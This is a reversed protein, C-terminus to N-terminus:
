LRDPFDSVIGEVGLTKVWEIDLPDNVTYVFVSYSASHFLEVKQRTLSDLPLGVYSAKIGIPIAPSSSGNELLAMTDTSPIIARVRELEHHLFSAYIVLGKFASQRVTTAVGEALDPAKIELIVGVRSSAIELAEELTPIREGEGADLHRVEKLTMESVTGKGNTTRDVWEDHLLVFRGDRTRRVDLEVMDAGLVIARQISLLTNEPAHGAAGRHGIRVIM